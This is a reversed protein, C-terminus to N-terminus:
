ATLLLGKEGFDKVTEEIAARLEDEPAEYEEGLASVLDALSRPTSLLDWIRAATDNLLHVQRRSPDVVVTEEELSQFPVGPDRQWPSSPTKVPSM